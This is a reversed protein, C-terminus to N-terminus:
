CNCDRVCEQNAVTLGWEAAKARGRREQRRAEKIFKLKRMCTKTEVCIYRHKSASCRLHLRGM